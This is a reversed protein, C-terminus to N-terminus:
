ALVTAAAAAVGKAPDEEAAPAELEVAQVEEQPLFGASVKAKPIGLAWEIGHHDGGM